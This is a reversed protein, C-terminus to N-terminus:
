QSLDPLLEQTCCLHACLVVEEVQASMRQPRHRQNRPDVLLELHLLSAPHTRADSTVPKRRYNSRLRFARVLSNAQAAIVAALGELTPHGFVDRLSVKVEFQQHYGFVLTMARLSHGGLDFFNDQAGLTSCRAPGALDTGVHNSQKAARRWMFSGGDFSATRRRYRKATSRATRHLPLRELQVFYAPIM